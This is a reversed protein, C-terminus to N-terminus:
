ENKIDTWLSFSGLFLGFPICIAFLRYYENFSIANSIFVYILFVSALMGFMAFIGLMIGGINKNFSNNNRMQTSGKYIGAYFYYLMHYGINIALVAFLREILESDRSFILYLISLILNLFGITRHYKKIDSKTM